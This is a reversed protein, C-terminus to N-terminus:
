KWASLIVAAIVLGLFHYSATIIMWVWPQPKSTEFTATTAFLTLVYGIGIVLGLCIGNGVSDSGTAVVLLGTALVSVFCTVLPALYIAPGPSQTNEMDMGAAKGWTNGFLAPSYWLAGLAFYVLTAVVVALWNLDGLGDLSM